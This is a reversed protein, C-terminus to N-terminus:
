HLVVRNRGGRKAEYLSADAVRMADELSGTAAAVGVSITVSFLAGSDARMVLGEVAQRARNAIQVCDLPGCGRLLVAFEEGGMRGLIDGTRVMGSLSDCVKRIALDGAPHGYTDNVLKFHDIDILLLCATQDQGARALLEQAQEVFFKRNLLGTLGDFTAARQLEQRASAWAAAYSTVTFPGIALAAVGFRLSSVDTAGSLATHLPLLGIPGAILIWWCTASVILMAAFPKFRAACWTLAPVVFAISGPGGYLHMFGISALLTLLAATQRLAPDLENAVLQRAGSVPMAWCFCLPVVTMYNVFEVTFWLFFSPQAGLKFLSPGALLGILGAGVSAFALVLILQIPFVQQRSSPQLAGSLMTITVGFAVGTMNAATLMLARVPDDGVMAGSLLYGVGAAIWTAPRNTRPRLLLVSLLLANAPWISALSFLARTSIGFLCAALVMLGIFLSELTQNATIAGLLPRDTHPTTTQEM